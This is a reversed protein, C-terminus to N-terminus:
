FFREYISLDTRPQICMVPIEENNAILKQEDAGFMYDNLGIDKTIVIIILDADIYKSFDLTQKVFSGKAKSEHIEFEINKSELYKKAFELNNKINKAHIADNTNPVLVNVLLKFNEALYGVWKLKQKSEKRFDVPFVINSYHNHRPPGQVVIFPVKSSAIVKLAWSGTLKQMGKIGHTGMLVLIAEQEVAYEGLTSFVSGDKVVYQIKRSFEIMTNEITKDMKICAESYQEKDEIIHVLEVIAKNIEALQLAHELANQAKPSFDWAVLIKDQKAM